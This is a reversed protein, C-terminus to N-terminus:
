SEDDDRCFDCRCGWPPQRGCFDCHGDDAQWRGGACEWGDDRAEEIALRQRCVRDEAWDDYALPWRLDWFSRLIYRLYELEEIIDYFM